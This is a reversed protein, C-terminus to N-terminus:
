EEANYMLCDNMKMDQLEEHIFTIFLNLSNKCLYATTYDGDQVIYVVNGTSCSAKQHRKRRV